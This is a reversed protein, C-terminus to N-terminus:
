AFAQSAVGYYNTGNWYFSLIDTGSTTITPASGGAWLIDTDWGAITSSAANTVRLVLNCPGTPNTFNLTTINTGLTIAQKQGSNWDITTTTTAATVVESIFTASKINDLTSSNCDMTTGSTLQPSTQTGGTLVGTMTVNNLGTVNKSADVVVAKSAEVTGDAAICLPYFNKDLEAHTLATTKLDEAGSNPTVSGQITDRTVIITM